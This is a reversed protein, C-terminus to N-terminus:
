GTVTDATSRGRRRASAPMRASGAPLALPYAFREGRSAAAAACLPAVVSLFLLCLLAAGSAPRLAPGGWVAGAAPLAAYTLLGLQYWQARRAHELVFGAPGDHPGAQGAFVRGAAAPGAAGLGPVLAAPLVAALHIWAAIRAPASGPTVPAAPGAPPTTPSPSSDLPTRSMRLRYSVLFREALRRRSM